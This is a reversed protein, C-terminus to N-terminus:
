GGRTARANTVFGRLAPASPRPVAVCSELAVARLDVQCARRWSPALTTTAIFGSSAAYIGCLVNGAVPVITLLLIGSRELPRRDAWILLLVWALTFVAAVSMAYTYEPGPAFDRIGMVLGFLTPSVMPALAILEFLAYAWYCARILTVTRRRATGLVTQNVM